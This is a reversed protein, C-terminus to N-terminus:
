MERTFYCKLPLAPPPARVWVIKRDSSKSDLADALEAVGAAPITFTALAPPLELAELLSSRSCAERRDSYKASFSRTACVLPLDFYRLSAQKAAPWASRRRLPPRM